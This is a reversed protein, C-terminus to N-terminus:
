SPMISTVFLNVSMILWIMLQYLNASTWRLFMLKTFSVQIVGASLNLKNKRGNHVHFLRPIKLKPNQNKKGSKIKTHIKDKYVCVHLYILPDIRWEMQEVSFRKNSKLHCSSPGPVLEAAVTCCVHTSSACRCFLGAAHQGAWQREAGARGQGRAGPSRPQPVSQDPPLPRTDSSLDGSRSVDGGRRWKPKKGTILLLSLLDQDLFM